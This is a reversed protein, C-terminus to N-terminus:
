DIFAIGGRKGSYRQQLILRDFGKKMTDSSDGGFLTVGSDLVIQPAIGAGPGEIGVFEIELTPPHLPKGVPDVV